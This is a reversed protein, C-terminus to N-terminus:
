AAPAGREDREQRFMELDRSRQGAAFRGGQALRALFALHFLLAGALGTVLVPDPDAARLSFALLAPAFNVMAALVFLRTCLPDIGSGAGMRRSLTMAAREWDPPRGAQAEFHVQIYRGIREVGVHSALVVEYAGALVALPLLAQFPLGAGIPPGLLISAPWAVFTLAIVFLRLTGRERITARLARFEETALSPNPDPM